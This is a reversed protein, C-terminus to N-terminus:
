LILYRILFVVYWNATSLDVGESQDFYEFFGASSETEHLLFHVARYRAWALVSVVMHTVVAAVFAGYVLFPSSLSCLMFLSCVSLALGDGCGFGHGMSGDWTSNIAASCFDDTTPFSSAKEHVPGTSKGACIEGNLIVAGKGCCFVRLM